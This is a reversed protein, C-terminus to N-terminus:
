AHIQSFHIYMCRMKRLYFIDKKARPIFIYTPVVLVLHFLSPL